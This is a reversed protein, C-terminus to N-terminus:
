EGQGSLRSLGRSACVASSDMRRRLPPSASQQQTEQSLRTTNNRTTQIRTVDEGVRGVRGIEEHCTPSMRALINRPSLEGMSNQDVAYCPHYYTQYRGHTRGNTQPREGTQVTQGKVKIKPM